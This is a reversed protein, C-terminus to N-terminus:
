RLTSLAGKRSLRAADPPYANPYGAVNLDLLGSTDYIRYAYRAVVRSPNVKGDVFDQSLEPAYASLKVPGRRNVYIWAPVSTLASQATTLLKPYNWRERSIAHGDTSRKDATVPSALSDPANDANYLKGGSTSTRLLSPVRRAGDMPVSGDMKPLADVRTKPFYANTTGDTNSVTISGAEMERRLDNVVTNLADSAVQQAAVTNSFSASASLEFQSQSVFAVIIITAIVVISLVLVLAIGQRSSATLSPSKM